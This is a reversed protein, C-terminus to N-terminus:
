QKDEDMGHLAELLAAWSFYFHTLGAAELRQRWAQESSARQASPVAAMEIIISENPAYGAVEVLWAMLGRDPTQRGDCLMVVHAPSQAQLDSLLQQRQARDDVVGWWHWHEPWHEQTPSQDAALEMGAVATPQDVRVARRAALKQMPVADPPSPADIGVMQVEPALRPRLVVLGPRQLDLRLAHVHRRWQWLSLGACVVRPLWGYVVVSALLWSAWLAHGAPPLTSLGDSLRIFDADPASLGLGRLGASAWQALQVFREADFLTSEWQFFYRQFALMFWLRVTAALLAVGWFLHHVCSVWWFSLRQQQLVAFLAQSLLTTDAGPLLKQALWRWRGGLTQGAAQAGLAHLVAGVLWILLGLTPVGLLVFWARIINVQPGGLALAAQAMGGGVVIALVIWGWCVWRLRRLLRQQQPAYGLRECLLRARVCVRGVEDSTASRARRVEAEDALPGEHAEKLRIIEVSWLETFTPRYAASQAM